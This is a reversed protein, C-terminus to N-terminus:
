HYRKLTPREKIEHYAIADKAYYHFVMSKRTMKPNRIREGGHILNHHWILVDGKKALLYKKKAKNEILIEKIKNSYDQYKKKGLLFKSSENSFDHNMIYPYRQSGPYYFLPGNEKNIDELAVWIAILNGKPFTTMSIADSHAAQESGTIFNISQFVNVKKDLLLELIKIMKPHAGVDLLIKSHHIAFMIKNKNEFKIIKRKLLREVEDNVADISDSSFYGKLFVFGESSWPLLENQVSPDLKLFDENKPLEERSDLRDHKNLEEDIEFFDKARIPSFYKKRIGYKQFLPLNHILYKKHFFNYIQFIIKLRYMYRKM